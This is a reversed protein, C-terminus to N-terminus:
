PGPQQLLNEHTVSKVQLAELPLSGDYRSRLNSSNKWMFKFDECLSFHIQVIM